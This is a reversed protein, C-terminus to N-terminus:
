TKLKKIHITGTKIGAAFNLGDERLALNSM